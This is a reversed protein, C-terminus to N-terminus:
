SCGDIKCVGGTCTESYCVSDGSCSQGNPKLATCTGNDCRFYAACTDDGLVQVCAQGEGPLPKCTGDLAGSGAACYEGDPCMSPVALVKCAAGSAVMATCTGTAPPAADYACSLGSACLTGDQYSCSAGSQANFIESVSRCTGPATQTSGICLYSPTCQPASGGECAAGHAAPTVCAGSHCVLGDQCADDRTCSGGAPELATCKGPCGSARNCYTKGECEFDYSCEAGVALTGTLAKDCTDNTRQALADCSRGGLESLCAAALSADYKVTGADISAQVQAISGNEMRKTTVTLCDEGGMALDFYSGFCKKLLDCQMKAVASPLDSAPISSSGGSDDSSGGCASALTLGALLAAISTRHLM